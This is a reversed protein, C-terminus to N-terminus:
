DDILPLPQEQDILLRWVDGMRRMREPLTRITFQAPQVRGEELEEWTVPTSVPAGPLARVSYPSALAKGFDNQRYDILVKHPDRQTTFNITALRPAAQVLVRAALRAWEMVQTFTYDRRIGVVVHLGAGGTTKIYSMVGILDLLRRLLLAVARTDEFRARVGPILDFGVQDPRHPNDIRSLWTRFEVVDQNVFWGLTELDQVQHMHPQEQRRQDIWGPIRPVFSPRREEQGGIGHPFAVLDVPRGRLHPVIVPGMHRYYDVLEGKLIGEGPWFLLEPKAAHAVKGNTRRPAGSEM